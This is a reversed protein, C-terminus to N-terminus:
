FPIVTSRFIVSLPVSCWGVLEQETELDRSHVDIRWGWVGTNEYRSKQNRSFEDVKPRAAATNWPAPIIRRHDDRRRVFRCLIQISGGGERSWWCRREEMAPCIYESDVNAIYRICSRSTQNHESGSPGSLFRLSSPHFFPALTPKPCRM